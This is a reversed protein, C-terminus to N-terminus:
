SKRASGDEGGESIRSKAESALWEAFDDLESDSMDSVHKGNFVPEFMGILKKTM